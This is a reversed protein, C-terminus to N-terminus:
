IIYRFPPNSTTGYLEDKSGTYHMFLHFVINHLGHVIIVLM